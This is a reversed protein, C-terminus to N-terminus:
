HREIDPQASIIHFNDDVKYITKHDSVEWAKDLKTIDVKKDTILKTIAYHLCSEVISATHVIVDRFLSLEIAGRRAYIENTVTLFIIYQFCVTVNQRVNESEIFKFRKELTPIDPISDFPADDM